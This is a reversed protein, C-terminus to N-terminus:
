YFALKFRHRLQICHLIFVSALTKNCPCATILNFLEAYKSIRFAAAAAENAFRELAIQRRAKQERWFMDEDRYRALKLAEDLEIGHRKARAILEEVKAVFEEHKRPFLGEAKDAIACLAHNPPPNM